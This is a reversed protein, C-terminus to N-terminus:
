TDYRDLLKDIDTVDTRSRERYFILLDRMEDIERRCDILLDRVADHNAYEPNFLGGGSLYTTVRYSNISAGTQVQRAACPGQHGPERSCYWGSPPLKCGQNPPRDSM